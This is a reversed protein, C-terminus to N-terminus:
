NSIACLYSLSFKILTILLFLCSKNEHHELLTERRKCFRKMRLHQRLLKWWQTSKMSKSNIWEFEYFDVRLYDFNLYELTMLMNKNHLKDQALDINRLFVMSILRFIQNLITKSQGNQVEDVSFIWGWWFSDVGTTWCYCDLSLHHFLWRCLMWHQGRFLLFVLLLQQFNRRRNNALLHIRWPNLSFSLKYFKLGIFNYM